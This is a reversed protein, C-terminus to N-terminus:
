KKLNLNWLEEFREKTLVLKDATFFSIGLFNFFVDKNELYDKSKKDLRGNPYKMITSSYKEFGIKKYLHYARKNYKAVDLYIKSYGLKMFYFKIMEILTEYGFGKNIYNPDLVIGLEATKLIPKQNKFSIYGIAREKLFITYYTSMKVNTKWEYWSKVGEETQESFNYDDYMKSKHKGWNRFQGVDELQMKKFSLHESKIM